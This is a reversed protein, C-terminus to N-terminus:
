ENQEKSLIMSYQAENDVATGVFTVILPGSGHITRPEFTLPTEFVAIAQINQIAKFGRDELASRFEATGAIRHHALM